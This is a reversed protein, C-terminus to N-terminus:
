KKPKTRQAAIVNLATQFFSANFRSLAKQLWSSSCVHALVIKFSDFFSSAELCFFRAQLIFIQHIASVFVSGFPAVVNKQETILLIPLLKSKRVKLITSIAPLL